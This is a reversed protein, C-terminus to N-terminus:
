TRISNEIEFMRRIGDLINVSPVFKTDSKLRSMDQAARFSDPTMAIDANEPMDVWEAQLGLGEFCEVLRGFSVSVGSGLNYVSHNWKETSFLSSVAFALDEGFIWDRTIDKGYLKLPRSGSVAQLLRGMQSIGQRTATPQELPGYVSGLRVSAFKKGGESNFWHILMESTRKTVSYLNDLPFDGEEPQMEGNGPITGIYIGSSSLFLMSQVDSSAQSAQLMNLTGSVNLRAASAQAVPDEEYGNTVAAGHIIHTIKQENVLDAVKAMDMVDLFSYRVERGRSALFNCELINPTRIDAVVVDYESPLWYALQLGVFGLGGTILVRKRM